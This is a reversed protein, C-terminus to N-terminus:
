TGSNNSLSEGDATDSPESPITPEDEVIAETPSTPEPAETEPNTEEPSADEPTDGETDESISEDPINEGEPPNSPEPEPVEPLPEPPLIEDEEPQKDMFGYVDEEILERVLWDSECKSCLYRDERYKNWIGGDALENYVFSDQFVWDHQGVPCVYPNDPNPYYESGEEYEEADELNSGVPMFFVLTVSQWNGNCTYCVVAGPYLNRIDTGDAATLSYGTNVGSMVAVCEYEGSGGDPIYAITGAGCSKIKNFGQNVHDGIILHGQSYFYVASNPADVVAQSSSAYCKVSLGVSPISLAGVCTAGTDNDANSPPQTPPHEPPQTEAPSQESESPLVNDLSQEPKSNQEDPTKNNTQETCSCLLKRQDDFPSLTIIKSVGENKNESNLNGLKITDIQEETSLPMDECVPKTSTQLSVCASM